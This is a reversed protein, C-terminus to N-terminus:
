GLRLKGLLEDRFTRGLPLEVGNVVINESNITEVHQINVVFKRHIRVFQKDDFNDLYQQMSTRVLIKKQATHVTVYVHESELYLIDTFKIKHFYNGDKIFLADKVLYHETPKQDATPQKEQHFNHLCIEIASYLDDRTFPKVLYAPPNTEKARQVTAADANATLFIFPIGYDEKIKWALDIGDKTGKLQIDLLVLDPKENEIMEIAKGFTPAPNTVDYGIKKLTNCLNDAIIIEDEVVGIKLNNM